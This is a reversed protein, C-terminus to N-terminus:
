GNVDIQTLVGTEVDFIHGTVVLDRPLLREDRVAAVDDAVSRELDKFTLLPVHAHDPGGASRVQRGVEGPTTEELACDTHHVIAINRTGRLWTSLVLSRIVDDTVRGGANRLVHADGLTMGLMHLPPIRTDMCTVIVASRAPTAPIM